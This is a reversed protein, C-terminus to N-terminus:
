RMKNTMKGSYFANADSRLWLSTRSLATTTLPSSETHSLMMGLFPFVGLRQDLKEPGVSRNPLYVGTEKFDQSGELPQVVQPVIFSM